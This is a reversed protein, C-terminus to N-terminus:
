GRNKKHATKPNDKSKRKRITQPHTVQGRWQEPIRVYKGRRIRAIPTSNGNLQLRLTIEELTENSKSV